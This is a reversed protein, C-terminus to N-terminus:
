QIEFPILWISAQYDKVPDIYYLADNAVVEIYFNYIGAATASLVVTGAGNALQKRESNFVAYFTCNGAAIPSLTSLDITVTVSDGSGYQLLSDVSRFRNMVHGPYLTDINSSYITDYRTGSQLIVDLITPREAGRNPFYYSGYSIRKLQWERPDKIPYVIKGDLTEPKTSDRVPQFFLHRTGEAQIGSIEAMGGVTDINITKLQRLTDGSPGIILSDYHGSYKKDWHISGIVTFTDWLYVTCATDKTYWLDQFRTTATMELAVSDVHQKIIPDTTRYYSDAVPFSVAPLNIGIILPDYLDATELLDPNANLLNVIASDDAPTGDYFDKPPENGCNIFIFSAIVLLYALCRKM